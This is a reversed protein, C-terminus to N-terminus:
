IKKKLCSVAFSTRMLSQLESTHEESRDFMGHLRVVLESTKTLNINVNSRLSYSKLDINSNFNNRKDVEMLGNDQNFAGSVFYRAVGGGGSLSMNARQNMTYDKFMQERWDNTPYALSNIGNTTNEIKRDSYLTAELPNRTLTAENAMIMYTVPDALEVNQTPASLSNEMRISLKAQGVAGEKTTVLIVGNAARSGYLATATADKLVSFSAIDDVQLRALDTTTLEIGDILILPDKKYGFTTVGRIFFDANDMGPEGSRQFAIMGAVRGALASTLNSSPVKLDAPNVSVVSGVM